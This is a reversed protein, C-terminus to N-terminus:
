FKNSVKVPKGKTISENMAIVTALSKAADSYPSAATSFDKARIQKLLEVMEFYHHSLGEPAISLTENIKTDEVFGTIQDDLTLTLRFDKGIFTLIGTPTKHAWSHVHTGSAGSAFLFSTSSSDEITFDEAKPRIVNTGLTHVLTIDGAFYRILDMVHVAQDLVHGGSREKIYFWGPLKWGTSAPCLFATQVLNIPRDGILQKLRIVSPLYRYMFGVVVPLKAKKSIKVIKKADDLNFAPPKEFFVPIKKPAAAEVISLRVSAPTCVILADLGSEKELMDVVNDYGTAQLQTAWKTRNAEQVDCVAVIQAGGIAAINKAHAGFIGGTGVAALRLTTGSM